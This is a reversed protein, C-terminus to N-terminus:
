TLHLVISVEIKVTFPSLKGPGNIIPVKSFRAGPGKASVWVYRGQGNIKIESGMGKVSCLLGKWGAM